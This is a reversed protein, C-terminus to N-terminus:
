RDLRKANARATAAALATDGRRTLGDIVGAADKKPKNQSLKMKGDIRTVALEVGVIQTFRQEMYGAPTDDVSWPAPEHQEYKETLARLHTQLWAPDDHATLTGHINLTEYSWTPVVKGHDKKSPYFSPTIYGDVGRIIALAAGAHQWQLNDRSVHGRLVGHPGVDAHFVMPLVSAYPTGDVVTVLDVAGCTALMDSVTENDAVFHEPLYMVGVKHTETPRNM